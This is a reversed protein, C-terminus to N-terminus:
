YNFRVLQSKVVLLENLLKYYESVNGRKMMEKSLSKLAQYKKTNKEM